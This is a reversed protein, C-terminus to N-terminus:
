SFGDKIYHNFKDDFPKREGFVASTLRETGFYLREEDTVYLGRTVCRYWAAFLRATLDEHAHRIAERHRIGRHRSAADIEVLAAQVEQYANWGATGFEVRQASPPHDSMYALAVPMRMAVVHTASRIADSRNRVRTLWETALIGTVIVVGSIVGGVIAAHIAVSIALTLTM